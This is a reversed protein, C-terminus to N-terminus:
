RTVAFTGSPPNSLIEEETNYFLRAGVISAGGSGSPKQIQYGPAGEEFEANLGESAVFVCLYGSDAEPNEPGPAGDEASGDDCEAPPTVGKKVLKTHSADLPASLAIPFSIGAFGFSLEAEEITILSGVWAGTETAISGGGAGNCVYNVEESDEVEFESGGAEACPEGEPEEEGTFTGVLVSKGPAGPLGNTGNTGDTGDSGNSGDKGNAGAPGQPGAPGTGQVSIAIGKVQKKQKANLGAQAKKKHHRKNNHNAAYAGGLMAFVLAIVAIAGPIGFNRRLSSFM